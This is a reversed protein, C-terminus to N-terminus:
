SHFVFVIIVGSNVNDDFVCLSVYCKCVQICCLKCFRIVNSCM